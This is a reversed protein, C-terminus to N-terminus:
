VAERAVAEVAAWIVPVDSGSYGYYTPHWSSPKRITVDTEPHNWSTPPLLPDITPVQPQDAPDHPPHHANHVHKCKERDQSEYSVVVQDSRLQALIMEINLDM